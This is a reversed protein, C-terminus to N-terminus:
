GEEAGTGDSRQVGALGGMLGAYESIAGTMCITKGRLEVQASQVQEAGLDAHRFRPESVAQRLQSLHFVGRSGIAWRADVVMGCV